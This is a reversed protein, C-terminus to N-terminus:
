LPKSGAAKKVAPSASKSKGTQYAHVMGMFKQQAKSTAPM